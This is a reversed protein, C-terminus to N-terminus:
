KPAEEEDDQDDLIEIAKDILALLRPTRRSFSGDLSFTTENFTSPSMLTMKYKPPLPYDIKIKNTSM